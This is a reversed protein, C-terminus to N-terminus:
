EKLFDYVGFFFLFTKVGEEKKFGSSVVDHPKATKRGM